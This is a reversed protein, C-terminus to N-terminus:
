NDAFFDINENEEIITLIRMNQKFSFRKASVSFIYTEGAAVDALHYYGFANTLTTRAEGATNLLTIQAGRIGRGDAAVVRGGVSVAAATANRCKGASGANYIAQIEAQSLARNIVEAEDVLGSLWTNNRDFETGNGITLPRTPQAPRTLNTVLTTNELVGNVYMRLGTSDWTGAVFYWVNPQILTTSSVSVAGSVFLYFRDDTRAGLDFDSSFSGKTIIEMHRGAASPTQNFRVWADLTATMTPDQAATSPMQVFDDAGDFSFAQQVMGPAFTAGNMLTGHNHTISIDNPTNDGPYWGVIGAPPPTCVQAAASSLFSFSLVILLLRNFNKM